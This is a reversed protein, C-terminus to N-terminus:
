SLKSRDDGKAKGSYSYDLVSSKRNEGSGKKSSKEAVWISSTQIRENSEEDDAEMSESKREESSERSIQNQSEFDSEPMRELEDLREQIKGTVEKIVDEFETKFHAEFYQIWERLREFSVKEIIYRNFRDNFGGAHFNKLEKNTTQIVYNLVSANGKLVSLGDDKSDDEIEKYKDSKSNGTVFQGFINFLFNKESNIM